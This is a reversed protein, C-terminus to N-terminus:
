RAATPVAVFALWRGSPDITVRGIDSLGAAGLDAVATWGPAGRTWLHMTTGSGALLTNGDLWTYEEVRPLTPVLRTVTRTSPDLEDIFWQAGQKQVFTVHTSGPVRKVGRGIDRAITDRRGSVTDMLQLTAPSGLVFMVVQSGVWAYYGVPKVSGVLRAATGDPTLPMRWLHQASDREVRIVTLARGDPTVQASYESEATVM